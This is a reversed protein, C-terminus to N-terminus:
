ISFKIAAGGEGKNHMMFFVKGGVIPVLEKSGDTNTVENAECVESIVPTKVGEAIMKTSVAGLVKDAANCFFFVGKKTPHEKANLVTTNAEIKFEEPTLTRLFKLASM